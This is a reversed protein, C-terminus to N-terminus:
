PRSSVIRTNSEEDPACTKVAVAALPWGRIANEGSPRHKAATTCGIILGIAFQPNPVHIRALHPQSKSDQRAAPM